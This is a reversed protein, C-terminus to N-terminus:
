LYSKFREIDKEGKVSKDLKDYNSACKFAKGSFRDILFKASFYGCNSSDDSQDKCMNVKVKYLLNDNMKKVLKRLDGMFNKDPLSVLSDYIEVSADPRSIFVAKWHSGVEGANDTNIVFGFRETDKNIFPLLTEMQDNAIVPIYEEPIKKSLIESIEDNYLGEDKDGNKGEGKLQNALELMKSSYKKSIGTLTKTKFKKLQGIEKVIPRDEYFIQLADNVEKFDDDTYDSISPKGIIDYGLLFQIVDKNFTTYVKPKPTRKLKEEHKSESKVEEAPIGAEIPVEEFPIHVDEQSEAYPIFSNMDKVKEDVVMSVYGPIDIKKAESLVIDRIDDRTIEPKDKITLPVLRKVTKSLENIIKTYDETSSNGKPIYPVIQGSPQYTLQPIFRKSFLLDSLGSLVYGPPKKLNSGSSSVDTNVPVQGRSEPASKKLKKPKPKRGMYGLINKININILSKEKMKGDFKIYRKRKNVKFYYGKKNKFIRKPRFKLM